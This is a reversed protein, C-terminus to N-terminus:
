SLAQRIQVVSEENISQQKQKNPEKCPVRENAKGAREIEKSTQCFVNQRHERMRVYAVINQVRM